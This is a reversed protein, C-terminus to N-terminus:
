VSGAAVTGSLFQDASTIGRDSLWKLLRVKLRRARQYVLDETMGYKDAVQKAGLGNIIYENVIVSDKWDKCVDGLL